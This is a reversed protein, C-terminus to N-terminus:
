NIITQHSWMYLYSRPPIGKGKADSSRYLRSKGDGFLDAEVVTVLAAELTWCGCGPRPYLAADIGEQGCQPERRM